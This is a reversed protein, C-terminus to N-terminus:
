YVITTVCLSVKEIFLILPTKGNVKMNLANADTENLRILLEPILTSHDIASHLLSSPEPLTTNTIHLGAFTQNMVYSVALTARVKFKSCRLVSKTVWSVTSYTNLLPKSM